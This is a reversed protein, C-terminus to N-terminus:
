RLSMIRSRLVHIFLMSHKRSILRSASVCHHIDLQIRCSFLWRREINVAILALCALYVEITFAPKHALAM